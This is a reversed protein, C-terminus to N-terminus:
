ETIVHIFVRKPDVERVYTDYEDLKTEKTGYEQGDRTFLVIDLNHSQVVEIVQGKLILRKAEEWSIGQPEAARVMRWFRCSYNKDNAVMLLLPRVKYLAEKQENSTSYGNRQLWSIFRDVFRQSISNRENIEAICTMAVIVVIIGITYKM